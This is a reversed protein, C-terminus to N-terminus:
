FFIKDNWSIIGFARWTSGAVRNFYVVRSASSQSTTEDVLDFYWTPNYLNLRAMGATQHRLGYVVLLWSFRSTVLSDDKGRLDMVGCGCSPKVMSYMFDSKNTNMVCYPLSLSVAREGFHHKNEYLEPVTRQKTAQPFFYISKPVM